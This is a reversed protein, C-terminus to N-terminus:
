VRVDDIDTLGRAIWEGGSWKGGRCIRVKVQDGHVPHRRERLLKVIHRGIASSNRTIKRTRKTSIWAWIMRESVKGNILSREIATGTHCRDDREGCSDCMRASDDGLDFLQPVNEKGQSAVDM